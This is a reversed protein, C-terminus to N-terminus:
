RMPSRAPAARPPLPMSPAPQTPSRPRRAPRLEGPATLSPSRPPPEGVTISLNSSGAAYNGNAAVSATIVCPGTGVSTIGTVSGSSNVSCGTGNANNVAYTVTGTGSSTAAANFTSTPYTISATQSPPTGGTGNTFTITPTAGGVTISLNSSGAAYNGNAAVSATIVCPGTGVSTIGTVSGSSNVSCGTGNANNVAYTVTGTGSSTAAANFTSTPYTISATQSPPTGGTGNTFTITPTTLSNTTFNSESGFDYISGFTDFAVIEFYYKTGATLSSVALSESAASNGSATSPSAAVKISECSSANTVSSSTSSYCFYMDYSHGTGNGATISGNLTATSTGISSAAGTTLATPTAASAIGVGMLPSASVALILTPLLIKLFRKM